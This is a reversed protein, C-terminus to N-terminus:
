RSIPSSNGRSQRSGRARAYDETAPLSRGNETACYPLAAGNAFSDRIKSREMRSYTLCADRPTRPRSGHFPGVDTNHEAGTAVALRTRDDLQHRPFMPTM